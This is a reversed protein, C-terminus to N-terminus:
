ERAIPVFNLIENFVMGEFLINENIILRFFNNKLSIINSKWEDLTHEVYEFQDDITPGDPEDDPDHFPSFFPHELAEKSSIREKPDLQFIKEFLDVM